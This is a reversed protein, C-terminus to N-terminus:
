DGRTKKQPLRGRKIRKREPTAPGSSGEVGALSIKKDGFTAVLELRGGIAEIYRRLTSVQCDDFDSRSELRSVDSQNMRAAEAVGIQTRGVAERLARMTLRIGRQARLGRGLVRVPELEDVHKRAARTM